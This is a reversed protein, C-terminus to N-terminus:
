VPSSVINQNSIKKMGSIEPKNLLESLDRIYYIAQQIIELQDGEDGCKPLINQDCCKPLINQLKSLTEKVKLDDNKKIALSNKSIKNESSSVVKSAKVM